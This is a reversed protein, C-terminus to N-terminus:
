LSHPKSIIEGFVNLISGPDQDVAVLRLQVSDVRRDADDRIKPVTEDLVQHIKPVM